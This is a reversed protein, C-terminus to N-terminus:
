DVYEFKVTEKGTPKDPGPQSGVDFVSSGSTQADFSEDKKGLGPPSGFDLGSSAGSSSGLGEQSCNQNENTDPTNKQEPGAKDDQPVEVWIRRIDRKKKSDPNIQYNGKLSVQYHTPKHKQQASVYNHVLVVENKEQSLASNLEQNHAPTFDVWTKDNFWRWQWAM